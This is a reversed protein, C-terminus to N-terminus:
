RIREGTQPDFFVAQAMSLSLTMVGGDEAVNDPHCRSIVSAGNIETFVLTDPGTPETVEVEIDLSHVGVADSWQPLNTIQEPRLGLTVEKGEYSSLVGPAPISVASQGKPTLSLSPQGAETVVKVPIFNMSPSGIFEAVYRNVPDSYVEKPTGLQVVDGEKMVAIRNGLTMAEIQDHTVYIITTGLRHHLKKIEARMDVRLKADLNSLPEDFLFIKPDRVLARGMAVRQRQGGSLQAPKRDLLHDVKLMKSFHQLATEMESASVKRQKLGFTINDRVSMNPYLAYSQFVMAINRDKPEMNNVVYDDIRIEGDNLTELGAIINLLTSKGCGSPGLLVLFEGESVNINVERLVKTSGFSKSVNRVELTAM